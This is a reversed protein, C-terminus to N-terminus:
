FPSWREIFKTGYSRRVSDYVNGEPTDRVDIDYVDDSSVTGNPKIDEPSVIGSIYIYKIEEGIQMRQPGEIQLNGNDLKRSVRCKIKFSLNEDRKLDGKARTQHDLVGGIVPPDESVPEPLKSIGVFRIWDTLGMKANIKKQKQLDAKSSYKSSMNVIVTILDQEKFVKPQPAPQYTYSSNALTMPRNGDSSSFASTGMMSADQASASVTLAATTIITAIIKKM